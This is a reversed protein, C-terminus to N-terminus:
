MCPIQILLTSDIIAFFDDIKANKCEQNSLLTAPWNKEVSALITYRLFDLDHHMSNQCCLLRFWAKFREKWESVESSSVEDSLKPPRLHDYSHQPHSSIREVSNDRSAEASLAPPVAVPPPIRSLYGIHKHSLDSFLTSHKEVIDLMTTCLEKFKNLTQLIIQGCIDEIKRRKENAEVQMKSLDDTM